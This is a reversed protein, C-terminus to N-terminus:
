AAAVGVAVRAAAERIEAEWAELAKGAAVTCAAAEAAEKEEAVMVAAEWGKAAAAEVEVM